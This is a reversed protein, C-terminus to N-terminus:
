FVAMRIGHIKSMLGGNSGDPGNLILDVNKHYQDTDVSMSESLGDASISGSKPLFMDTMIKYIAKKKIADLLEPYETSVNTLGATYIFQVMAPITRGQALNTLIFGSMATIVASSNPVIRIHGYKKDIALWDIPIDFFGMNQTPYVFRIQEVSIIPKQRTNIWGWKDREFMTPDYDTGLEEVWPMGNLAALQEETPAHPFFKTPVLPVRLAHGIESEAARIKDWIYDDSFSVDPMAGAAAMVLQDRRIDDVIMDKIFLSNRVPAIVSEVMLRFRKVGFAGQIILMVETLPLLNTQTDTLTVVAVGLPWNAGTASSSLNFSPIYEVLGDMSTIRGTITGSLVVSKGNAQVTVSVTAASGKLITTM